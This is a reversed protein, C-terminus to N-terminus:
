SKSNSGSNRFDETVCRILPRDAAARNKRGSLRFYQKVICEQCQPSKALVAGLQQPSSFESNPIGAM